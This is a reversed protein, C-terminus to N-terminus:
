LGELVACFADLDAALAEPAEGGVSFRIVPGTPATGVTRNGTLDMPAVISHLGGWSAGISFHQMAELARSVRPAAQPVPIVSFVGSAGTFDRKWIDHGSFQPLAPHLVAAVAPCTQLRGALALGISGAHALRLPLSQLGRLALSCDDPSVGLGLLKFGTRLRDWLEPDSTTISGMLLDSHGAIYKSVAEISIDIGLALPKCFLPTAWSNDCATPIGRAKAAAAIAPLDQIEMTTSGPSETLVLRVEPGLLADIRSGITPDYYVVTVGLGALMRHAFARVPPYVTDPILVTEGARVLSLIALTIAVLGSPTVMCHTGGELAAIQAELQRSTPTGHLGYSYAGHGNDNRAAYAAADPFVITSAREVAVSVSRFGERSIPPLTVCATMDEARIPFDSM